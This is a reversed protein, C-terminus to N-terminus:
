ILNKYKLIFYFSPSTYLNPLFCNIKGKPPNFEQPTCETCNRIFPNFSFNIPQGSTGCSPCTPMIPTPCVCGVCPVTPLRDKGNLGICVGSVSDYTYGTPCCPCAIPETPPDTTSLAALFGNPIKTIVCCQNFFQSIPTPGIITDYSATQGNFFTGADDVYTYGVPCCGCPVAPISQSRDCFPNKVSCCYGGSHYTYGEPCCTNAM